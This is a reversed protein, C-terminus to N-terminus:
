RLKLHLMMQLIVPPWSFEAQRSLGFYVFVDTSKITLYKQFDNNDNDSHLGPIKMLGLVNM